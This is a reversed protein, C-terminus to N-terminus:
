RPSSPSRMVASGLSSGHRGVQGLRGRARVPGGGRRAAELVAQGPHQGVDHVDLLHRRVAVEEVVQAGVRQHHGMEAGPDPLPGVQRRRRHLVDVPMGRDPAQRRRQGLGGPGPRRAMGPLTGPGPRPAWAPAPWAPPGPWCAATCRTRSAAAGTRGRSRRAPRAPRRGPRRTSRPRCRGPRCRGATPATRRRPSGPATRRQRDQRFPHQDAPPLGPLDADPAQGVDPEPDDLQQDPRVRQREQDTPEGSYVSYRLASPALIPGPTAIKVRWTGTHVSRSVMPAPVTIRM